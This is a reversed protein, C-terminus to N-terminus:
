RSIAKAAFLGLFLIVVMPALQWVEGTVLFWAFAVLGMATAIVFLFGSPNSKGTM